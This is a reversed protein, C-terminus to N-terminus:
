PLILTNERFTAREWMHEPFSISLSLHLYMYLLQYPGINMLPSRHIM